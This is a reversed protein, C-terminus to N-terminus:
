GISVVELQFLLTHGALPSQGSAGYAKEPPIRAASKGGAHTGVALDTFGQIVQGGPQFSFTSYSPRGNFGGFGVGHAKAYDGVAKVSTDFVRGDTTLGIYNGVVNDGDAAARDLVTGSPTVSLQVTANAGVTRLVVPFSGGASGKDLLAGVVFAVRQGAPVNFNAYGPETAAHVGTPLSPLEVCVPLSRDADNEAVALFQTNGGSTQVAHDADPAWLSLAVPAPNAVPAPDLLKVHNLTVTMKPVGNASAAQKNVADVVDKGDLVKGFVSYKDDLYHQAAFTIFFQSGDTNPGSNAMSLVYPDHRLKWHVQLPLQYGPGGQGAKSADGGPKTNPDGGQMMFDTIVRHFTTGDYFGDKALKAFNDATVPVQEHFLEVTIDGLSTQLVARPNAPAAPVSAPLNCAEQTGVSTGGGAGQSGGAGSSGGTPTTCGALLASTFALAALISLPAVARM